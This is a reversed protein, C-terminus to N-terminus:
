SSQIVAPLVLVMTMDASPDSRSTASTASPPRASSGPTWEYPKGSPM